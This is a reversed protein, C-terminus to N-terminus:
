CGSSVSLAGAILRPGAALLGCTLQFGSTAVNRAVEGQAKLAWNEHRAAWFNLTQSCGFLLACLPGVLLLLGAGQVGLLCGLASGGVITGFSLILTFSAAVVVRLPMADIADALSRQLVIPLEYRFGAVAGLVTGVGILGGFVGFAEPAYIRAVVPASAVTVLQAALTSCALALVHQAFRGDHATESQWCQLAAIAKSHMADGSQCSYRARLFVCDLWLSWNEVYYLDNRLREELKVRVDTEGRWGNVQAWGTIGPKVRHRAAYRKVAKHFPRGEVTTGHAHPRPGVLSM